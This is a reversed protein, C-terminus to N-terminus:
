PRAPGWEYPDFRPEVAALAEGFTFADTYLARDVVAGTLGSAVLETLAHLDELRGIGGGAIVAGRVRGLAEVLVARGDSKRVGRSDVDTVVYAPCGDEDLGGLVDLM